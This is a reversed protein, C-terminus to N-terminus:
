EGQEAAEAVTWKRRLALAYILLATLAFFFWQGAYALNKGPQDEDPAPLSSAEMGALPPDAVLLSSGDRNPAIIGSVPGGPWQPPDLERSWGAQVNVTNGDSTNCQVIQVYGANGSANSGATGRWNGTSECVINSRRYHAGESTAGDPFAVPRPDAAAVSFQALKREEEKMRDLQWFGLRVMVAVAALVVITAFIPIRRATM